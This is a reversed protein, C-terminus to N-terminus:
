QVSSLARLSTREKRAAYVSDRVRPLLLIAGLVAAELIEVLGSVALLVITPFLVLPLWWFRERHLSTELESVVQLNDSYRLETLRQPTTM